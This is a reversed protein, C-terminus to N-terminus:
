SMRKWSMSANFTSRVRENISPGDGARDIERMRRELDCLDTAQALYRDGDTSLRVGSRSAFPSFAKALLHQIM